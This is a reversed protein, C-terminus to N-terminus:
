AILAEYERLRVIMRGIADLAERKKAPDARVAVLDGANARDIRGALEDLLGAFDAAYERERPHPRFPDVLSGFLGHERSREGGGEAASRGSESLIAEDIERPDKEAIGSPRGLLDEELHRKHDKLHGKDFAVRVRGSLPEATACEAALWYDPQMAGAHVKFFAGRIEKLMGLKDNDATYVDAGVPLSIAQM